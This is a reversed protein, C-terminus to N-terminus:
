AGPLTGVAQQPDSINSGIRVIEEHTVRDVEDMRLLGFPEPAGLLERGVFFNGTLSMPTNLALDRQDPGIEM